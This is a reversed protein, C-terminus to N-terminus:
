YQQLHHLCRIKCKTAFVQSATERRTIEFPQHAGELLGALELGLLLPECTYLLNAECQRDEFERRTEMTRKGEVSGSYPNLLEAKGSEYVQLVPNRATLLSADISVEQEASAETCQGPQNMIVSRARECSIVGFRTSTCSDSVVNNQLQRGAKEFRGAM